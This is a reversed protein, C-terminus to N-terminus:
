SVEAPIQSNCWGGTDEVPHAWWARGDKRFLRFSRGHRECWPPDSETARPAPSRDRSVERAAVRPATRGAAGAAPIGPLSPDRNMQHPTFGALELQAVLAVVDAVDAIPLQLRVAFGEPSSCWIECVGDASM